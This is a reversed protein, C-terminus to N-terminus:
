GLYQDNVLTSNRLRRCEPCCFVDYGYLSVGDLSLSVSLTSGKRSDIAKYCKDASLMTSADRELIIDIKDTSKLVLNCLGYTPAIFGIGISEVDNFMTRTVSKFYGHSGLATSCIVGDAICQEMYKKGNVLVSFRLAETPNASRWVIEAIPGVLQNKFISKEGNLSYDIFPQKSYKLDLRDNTGEVVEELLKAHKACRGYNRIPIISKKNGVQSVIKLLQGDGGYAIAMNKAVRSANFKDILTKDDMMCM